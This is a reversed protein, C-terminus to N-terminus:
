EEEKDYDITISTKAEVMVCKKIEGITWDTGEEPWFARILEANKIRYIYWLEVDYDPTDEGAQGMVSILTARDKEYDGKLKKLLLKKQGADPKIVADLFGELSYDFSYDGTFAAKLARELRMDFKYKTETSEKVKSKWIGETLLGKLKDVNLVDLGQSDTIAASGSESFYKIYKTNRDDLVKMGRATLEAKCADLQKRNRKAEKDLNVAENVLQMTTMEKVDM